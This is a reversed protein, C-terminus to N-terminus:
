VLEKVYLNIKAELQKLEEKKSQIEKTIQKIDIQELEKQTENNQLYRNISLNYNNEKIEDLSALYAVQEQNQRQEYLKLITQINEKALYNKKGERKFEQSADIFLIHENKKCKTFIIICTAISTGYFINEPLSIITDIYEKEILHKRILYESNGRFLIGHPVVVACIGDDALLYLMHQIFAYDAAKAPALKEVGSFREDQLLNSSPKWKLSYPPNAVIVDFKQNMHEKDPNKLTDGNALHCNELEVIDSNLIMNMRALNYTSFNSDQGYINIYEINKKNKLKLEKIVKLLLAGSGCTPDYINKIKKTTKLTVLRAMLTSVLSPTYFEGAKKGASAAFEGILYEYIDGLVNSCLSKYPCINNIQSMITTFLKNRDKEMEGLKTDYFNINTFLNNFIKKSAKSQSSTHISQFAKYLDIFSFDKQKAKQILTSWWYQSELFFGLNKLVDPKFTPKELKSEFDKKDNIKYRQELLNEFKESLYRFCIIPLIYDKYEIATMNGRLNNVMSWLAKYLDNKQQYNDLNPEKQEIM